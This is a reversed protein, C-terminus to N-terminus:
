NETRDSPSSLRRPNERPFDRLDEQLQLSIRLKEPWPLRADAHQRAAHRAMLDKIWQEM